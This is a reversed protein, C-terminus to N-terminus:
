GDVDEGAERRGFPNEAASLGERQVDAFGGLYEWDTDLLGDDSDAEWTMDYVEDADLMGDEPAVQLVRGAFSSLGGRGHRLAIAVLGRLSRLLAGFLPLGEVPHTIALVVALVVLAGVCSPAFGAVRGGIMAVLGGTGGAILLRKFSIAGLGKESRQTINSRQWATM